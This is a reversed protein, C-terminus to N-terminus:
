LPQVDLADGHQARMAALWTPWAVAGNITAPPEAGALAPFQMKLAASCTPQMMVRGIDTLIDSTMYDMIRMVEVFPVMNIGTIVSLVAGISFRM